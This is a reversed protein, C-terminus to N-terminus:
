RRAAPLRGAQARARGQRSVAPRRQDPRARAPGPRQRRPHRLVHAARRGARRRGPGPPDGLSRPPAAPRDGRGPHRGHRVRVVRVLGHAGRGPVPGPLGAGARAAARRRSCSRRAAASTAGGAARDLAGRGGARRHRRCQQDAGDAARGGLQDRDDAGILLCGLLVANRASDSRYPPM